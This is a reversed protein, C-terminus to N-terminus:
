LERVARRSSNSARTERRPCSSLAVALWSNAFCTFPISNFIPAPQTRLTENQECNRHTRPTERRRPRRLPFLTFGPRALNFIQDSVAGTPRRFNSRRVNLTLRHVCINNRARCVGVSADLVVICTRILPSYRTSFSTFYRTFYRTFSSTSYSNPAFLSDLVFLPYSDRIRVAPRHSYCRM